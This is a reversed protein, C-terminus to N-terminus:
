VAKVIHKRSRAYTAGGNGTSGSTIELTQDAVVRREAHQLVQTDIGEAFQEREGRGPQRTKALAFQEVTHYRIDICEIM